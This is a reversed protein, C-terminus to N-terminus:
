KIVARDKVLTALVEVEAPTLTVAYGNGRRVLADHFKGDSAYRLTASAVDSCGKGPTLFYTVEGSAVKAESM